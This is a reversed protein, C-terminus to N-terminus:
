STSYPTSTPEDASRRIFGRRGNVSIEHGLAIRWRAVRLIEGLLQLRVGSAPRAVARQRHALPELPYMLQASLQRTELGNGVHSCSAASASAVVRPSKGTSTQERVWRIAIFRRARKV